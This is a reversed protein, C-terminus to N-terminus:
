CSLHSDLLRIATDASHRFWKLPNKAGTSERLWKAPFSGAAGIENLSIKGSHASNLERRSSDNKM